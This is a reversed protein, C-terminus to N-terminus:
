VAMKEDLYSTIGMFVTAAYTVMATKTELWQRHRPHDKFAIETIVSPCSTENLFYLSRDYDSQPGYTCPWYVVEDMAGSIRSALLEGSESTQSKEKDDWYLNTAYNGGGANLHLEVALECDSSNCQAVKSKLAADNTMAYIHGQAQIVEHGAWRLLDSLRDQAVRCREWEYLREGETNSSHGAAIYIKAM